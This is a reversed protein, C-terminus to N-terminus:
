IQGNQEGLLIKRFVCSEDPICLNRYTTGIIRHVRLHDPQTYGKTKRYWELRTAIKKPSVNLYRYLRYIAFRLRNPIPGLKWGSNIIIEFNRHIFHRRLHLDMRNFQWQRGMEIQYESPYHRPYYRNYIYEECFPCYLKSFVYRGATNREEGHEEKLNVLYKSNLKILSLAKM